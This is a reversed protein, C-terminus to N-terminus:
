LWHYALANTVEASTYTLLHIQSHLDSRGSDLNQSYSL